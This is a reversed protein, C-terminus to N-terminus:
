RCGSAPVGSWAPNRCDHGWIKGTRAIGQLHVMEHWAVQGESTYPALLGQQDNVL